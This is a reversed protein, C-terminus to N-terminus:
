TNKTFFFYAVWAFFIICLITLAWFWQFHGEEEFDISAMNGSALFGAWYLPHARVPQNKIFNVKAAKLAQDKTFGEKLQKFFYQMLMSTSKDPVEWLSMVLSKSGAYTFARSLSMVGEGKQLKGTGTNCASLVVLDANLEINYLDAAYLSHDISDVINAFVLNSYLPNEDNLFGHTALHLVKFQNAKDIFQQKTAETALFAQGTLLDAIKQVSIRANPLDTINGSRLVINNQQSSTKSSAINNNSGYVPAFGAYLELSNIESQQNQPQSSELLLAVSYAYSLTQKKLIYALNAYDIQNTNSPETLLIDFPIYNLEADPIIKLHRINPEVDALPNQLLVTYLEYSSNTFLDFAEQESNQILDIDTVSQQFNNVLETWNKPKSTKYLKSKEKQISLVYISSDGVFYELTAADNDLYNQLAKWQIENQQYKLQYYEPYNYELNRILRKYKNEEDFLLKEFREINEPEEYVRAYNLQKKYFSIATKLEGEQEIITDPLNTYQLAQSENMSQLLVTAKNKEMFRFASKAISIEKEQLEYVVALANEIYPLINKAQFLRSNETRIDNQLQNHYDLLTLYTQHALQLYVENHNQQYFSFASKAKSDLLRILDLNSYIFLSDNFIPNQFVNTSRFSNTLNIITTHYNKLAKSFDNKKFYCDAINEYNIAYEIDFKEGYFYAEKLKLAYKIKELAEDYKKQDMLEVGINNIIGAKKLTDEISITQLALDYSELAKNYNNLLGYAAGKNIFISTTINKYFQQEDLLNLAKNFHKIALLLNISDNTNYLIMGLENLAEAQELNNANVKTAMNGYLLAQEIDGIQLYNTSLARLLNISDSASEAKNANYALQNYYIAKKYDNLENYTLAINHQTRWLLGDDYLKRVKLAEEYYQLAWLYESHENYYEVAVQHNLCALYATDVITKSNIQDIANEISFTDNIKECTNEKIKVLPNTFSSLLLVSLYLYLSKM